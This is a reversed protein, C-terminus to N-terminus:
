DEFHLGAKAMIDFAIEDGTRNDENNANDMNQNYLLDYLTTMSYKNQPINQLGNAVYFRYTMDRNFDEIRAVVYRM